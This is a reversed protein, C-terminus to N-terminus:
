RDEDGSPGRPLVEVLQLLEAERHVPLHGGAAPRVDTRLADHLPRVLREGRAGALVEAAGQRSPEDERASEAAHAPPWGQPPSPVPPRPSVTPRRPFQASTRGSIRPRPMTGSM